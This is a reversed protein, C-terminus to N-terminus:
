SNMFTLTISSLLKYYDRFPSLLFVSCNHKLCLYRFDGSCGDLGWIRSYKKLNLIGEKKAYLNFLIEGAQLWQVCRSHWGCHCDILNVADATILCTYTHIHTQAASIWKVLSNSKIHKPFKHAIFTIRNLLLLFFFFFNHSFTLAFICFVCVCSRLCSYDFLNKLCTLLYTHVHACLELQYRKYHIRKSM